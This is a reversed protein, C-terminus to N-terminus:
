RASGGGAGRRQQIARMSVQWLAVGGRWMWLVPYALGLRWTWVAPFVVCWRWVWQTLKWLALAAVGIWGFLLFAIANILCGNSQKVYVVNPQQKNAM